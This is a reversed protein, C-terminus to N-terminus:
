IHELQEALKAVPTVKTDPKNVNQVGLKKKDDAKQRRLRIAIPFPPPGVLGFTRSDSPKLRPWPDVPGITRSDSSRGVLGLTWSLITVFCFVYSKHVRPSTSGHGVSGRTQEWWQGWSVLIRSTVVVPSWTTWWTGSSPYKTCGPLRITTLCSNCSTPSPLDRNPEYKM